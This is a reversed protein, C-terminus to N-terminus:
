FNLSLGFGNATTGLNLSYNQSRSSNYANVARRIRGNGVCYLAIGGALVGSGVVVDALGCYALAFGAYGGNDMSNSLVALGALYAVFGVGTAVGGGIMMGKGARRMRQGGTASAYVNTPFLVSMEAPTLVRGNMMLNGKYSTLVGELSSVGVASGRADLTQSGEITQAKMNGAFGIGLVMMAFVAIFKKM